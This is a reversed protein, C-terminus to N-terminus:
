LRDKAFSRAWRLPYEVISYPHKMLRRASIEAKLHPDFVIKGHEAIHTTIEIDEHIKSDDNCIENRIKEWVTKRIAMNAGMLLIYGYFKPLVKFYVANHLKSIPVKRKIDYFITPGTVGVVHAKQFDKKVYKIWDPSLRTDADIRVLIDGTATNFGKNRAPSMGQIREKVLIVEKYLRIIKTCADTSNNDVIIIEDPPESQNRLSDLCAGIYKEENYVPIIVSVKM